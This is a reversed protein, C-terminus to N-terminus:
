MSIDKSKFIQKSIRGNSYKYTTCLQGIAKTKAIIRCIRNVQEDTIPKAADVVFDDDGVAVFADCDDPLVKNLAEDIAASHNKLSIRGKNKSTAWYFFRTFRKVKAKTM